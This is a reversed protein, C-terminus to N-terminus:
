AELELKERVEAAIPTLLHTGSLLVGAQDELDNGFWRDTFADVSEHATRTAANIVDAVSDGPEKEFAGLLMELLARPRKRPVSLQKNVALRALAEPGDLTEGTKACLFKAVRANHWLTQFSEMAQTAQALGHSFQQRLAGKEGTHRVSNILARQAVFIGNTCKLRHAKFFVKQGLTGNDSSRVSIIIQHFDGDIDFPRGLAADIEFRGGDGMYKITGRCGEPLEALAIEAAIEDADHSQYRQTVLSFLDRSDEAPKFTRGVLTAQKRHLWSNVNSKLRNDVTAPAQRTLQTWAQPRTKLFGVDEAIASGDKKVLVGFDNVRLDSMILDIDERKEAKITEIFKECADKILPQGELTRNVHRALDQDKGYDSSTFGAKLTDGTMATFVDSDKEHVIENSM